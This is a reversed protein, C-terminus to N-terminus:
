YGKQRIKVCRQLGDVAELVKLRLDRDLEPHQELFDNVVRLSEASCQGGIFAALWGNVFFIKRTRKLKPLEALARELYPATLEAQRMSNFPGMGSEIWSEALAPDNVFADFYKQKNAADNRAAGAAYAYRREDDTATPKIEAALLAPADADGKAMLSTLIDFRDRSRLSMGPVPLRGALIQKLKGRADDTSAASMFARFYTIRLGPSDGHLMRDYLMKEFDAAVAQRRPEPLYNNFAALGRGLISQVTVEDREAPANAIVLKLFEAPDMDAERVSDWLSGWWLARLFDDKESGLNQVVYARSVHDLLFRGYGYDEYNPFVMRPPDGEPRYKGRIAHWYNGLVTASRNLEITQTERRGDAFILLAKVRMPWVGGEDLADSQDVTVITASDHPQGLKQYVRRDSRVVTVQPMGRRKVWTNAWEDLKLGSAAEFEVVLDRWEANAYAHKRVFARVAQKFKEPGLYFEAQRLMSPAKRYVINGYASKAASLNAIEQWIATTGKTSDTLYALPKNREYFSKWANFQPTVVTMAQYSMFEAFGEKLWLDDFWRMTVLDGFWQHAAEHFMVNARSLQDNATPDTPFLISDERLFTAGAHEMGRYAFEPILILDYKSFPYKFAFYDELYTVCGRNLKFVEAAEAKAQKLKTKRVFLRTSPAADAPVSPDSLVEFPGAAFAFLYTSIPKTERFQFETLQLDGNPGAGRSPVESVAVATNTAVTWDMPVAANLTFKGKLDPQDFCPFATSADSPVFLTYIYESKDERDVYRTVASGSTAIPSHFKLQIVNEGRVMRSAPVILHENKEFADAAPQGNASVDWARASASADPKVAPRWDLVLDVPADLEVRVELVGRMLAAQRQLEINLKYRVNRYHNARWLALDRPVGAAWETTPNTQGHIVSGVAFFLISAFVFYRMIPERYTGEGSITFCMRYIAFVSRLFGTKKAGKAEQRRQSFYKKVSLIEPM